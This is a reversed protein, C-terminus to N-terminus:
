REPSRSNAPSCACGTISRLPKGLYSISPLPFCLLFHSRCTSLLSPFPCLSFQRCTDAAPVACRKNPPSHLQFCEDQEPPESNITHPEMTCCSMVKSMARELELHVFLYLARQTIWPFITRCAKRLFCEGVSETLCCVAITLITSFAAFYRPWRHYQVQFTVISLLILVPSSSRYCPAASGTSCCISAAFFISAIRLGRQPGKTVATEISTEM